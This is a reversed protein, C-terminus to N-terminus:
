FWITNGIVAHGSIWGVEGALPAPIKSAAVREWKKGKNRTLYIEWNGGNPDGVAIGHNKNKFHVFRPVSNNNFLKGPNSQNWSVGGNTTHYVGGGKGFSLFINGYVGSIKHMAVWAEKEDIASINSFRLTKDTGVKGPIWTKGANTTRTFDLIPRNSLLGGRGDYCVAWATRKNPLSMEYFGLTDNSFGANQNLWQAPATHMCLIVVAALLYKKM